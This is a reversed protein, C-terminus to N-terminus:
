TDLLYSSNGHKIQLVRKQQKWSKMPHGIQQYETCDMVSISLGSLQRGDQLMACDVRIYIYINTKRRKDTLVMEKVKFFFTIIGWHNCLAMMQAWTTMDWWVMWLQVWHSINQKASSCLQLVFAVFRSVTEEGYCCRAGALQAVWGDAKAGTESQQIETNWCHAKCGVSVSQSHCRPISHLIIEATWQAFHKTTQSDLIYDEVGIAPHAATIGGPLTSSVLRIM